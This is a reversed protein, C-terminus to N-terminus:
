FNWLLDNDVHGLSASSYQNGFSRQFMENNYIVSSNDVDFDNEMAKQNKYKTSSEHNEILMKLMPEEQVMFCDSSFLNGVQPSFNWSAPSFDSYNKSSYYSSTGIIQTEFSDVIIDDQQTKQEEILNNPDSFCTVHSTEGITTKTESNYPSDDMLPPLEKGYSNLPVHIKNGCYGKEFVRCISWESQFSVM